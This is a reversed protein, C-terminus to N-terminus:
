VCRNKASKKTEFSLRLFAQKKPVGRLNNWLAYTEFADVGWSDGEKILVLLRSPPTEVTVITAKGTGSQVKVTREFSRSQAAMKMLFAETIVNSYSKLSLSSWMVDSPENSPNPNRNRRADLGQLLDIFKKAAEAQTLKRRSTKESEDQAWLTGDNWVLAGGCLSVGMWVALRKQLWISM